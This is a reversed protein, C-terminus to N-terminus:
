QSFSGVSFQNEERFSAAGKRQARGEVRDVLFDALGDHPTLDREM